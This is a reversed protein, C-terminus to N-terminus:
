SGIKTRIKKPSIRMRQSPNPTKARKGITVVGPFSAAMWGRAHHGLTRGDKGSAARRGGSGGFAGYCDGFGTQIVHVMFDENTSSPIRIIAIDYDKYLQTTYDMYLGILRLKSRSSMEQNLLHLKLDGALFILRTELFSSSIINAFRLGIRPLLRVM